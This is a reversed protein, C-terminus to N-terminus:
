YLEPYLMIGTDRYSTFTDISKLPSQKLYFTVHKPIQNKDLIRAGVEYLKQERKELTNWFNDLSLFNKNIMIDANASRGVFIYM